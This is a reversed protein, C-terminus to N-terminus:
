VLVEEDAYNWEIGMTDAVMQAEELDLCDAILGLTMDLCRMTSSCTYFKGDSIWKMGSLRQTGAVFMRKWNEDYNYDAVTRHYLVGTQMLLATGEAVSMCYDANEVAKKLVTLIENDLCFLRKAGTGGPVCFVDEIEIPNLPETWVQVDQGSKVIGGNKSLFRLYFHKPLKGFLQTPIFADMTEFDDFLFINVVM